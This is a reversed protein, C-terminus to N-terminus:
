PVLLCHIIWHPLLVCWLGEIRVYSHLRGTPAIGNPATFVPREGVAAKIITFADAAGGPGFELSPQSFVFESSLQIAAGAIQLLPVSLWPGAVSGNAADSGAM